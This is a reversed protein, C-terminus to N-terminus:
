VFRMDAILQDLNFGNVTTGNKRIYDESVVAFAESCQNRQFALNCPQLQGWTVYKLIDWGRARRQLCIMHGGVSPSGEVYTWPQGASFQDEQAQTISFAGYVTGFTELAQAILNTNAPNGIQAFAAVKHVKGTADTYGTTRMYDLASLPDTGNDGSGDAPNYGTTAYGKIIESPPIIVEPGDGYATWSQIMHGLAAWVCDGCGDPSGPCVEANAPDPGNCYMPWSSVLSARDVDASNPVFPLAGTMIGPEVYAEFIPRYRGTPSPKYGYKGPAPM